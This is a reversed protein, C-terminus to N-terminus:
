EILKTFARISKSKTLTNGLEVYASIGYTDKGEM